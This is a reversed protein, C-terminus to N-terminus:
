PIHSKAGKDIVPRANPGTSDFVPHKYSQKIAFTRERSSTSRSPRVTRTRTSMLEGSSGSVLTNRSSVRMLLITGVKFLNDLDFTTSRACWDRGPFFSKVDVRPWELSNPLSSPRVTFHTSSM